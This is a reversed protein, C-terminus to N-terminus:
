TNGLDESRVHMGLHRKMGALLPLRRSTTKNSKAPGRGMRPWASRLSRITPSDGIGQGGRGRGWYKGPGPRPGTPMKGWRRGTGGTQIPSGWIGRGATVIKEPLTVAIALSGADLRWTSATAM